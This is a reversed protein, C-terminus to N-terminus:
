HKNMHRNVGVRDASRKKLFDKGIKIPLYHCWMARILVGKITVSM